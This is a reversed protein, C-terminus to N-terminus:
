ADIGPDGSADGVRKLEQCFADKSLTTLTTGQTAAKTTSGNGSSGCASVAVAAAAAATIIMRRMTGEPDTYRRDHSARQGPRMLCTDWDLQSRGPPAATSSASCQLM